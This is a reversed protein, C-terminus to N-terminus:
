PVDVAMIGSLGFSPKVGIEQWATSPLDAHAGKMLSLRMAHMWAVLRRLFDPCIPCGANKKGTHCISHSTANEVVVVVVLNVAEVTLSEVVRQPPTLPPRPNATIRPPALPPRPNATIHQPPALNATIRPLRVLALPM